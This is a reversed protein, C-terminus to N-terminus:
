SSSNIETPPQASDYHLGLVTFFFIWYLHLECFRTILTLLKKLMKVLENQIKVHNELKGSILCKVM